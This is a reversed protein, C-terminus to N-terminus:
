DAPVNKPVAEQEQELLFAEPGSDSRKLKGASIRSSTYL